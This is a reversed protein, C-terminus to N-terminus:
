CELEEWRDSLLVWIELLLDTVEDIVEDLSDDTDVLGWLDSTHKDLKWNSLDLFIKCGILGKLNFNCFSVVEKVL